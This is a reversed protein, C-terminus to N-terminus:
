EEALQGGDVVLGHGTIFSAADSALFVAAKAVEEPKGLRRMPIANLYREITEPALGAKQALGTDIVGPNLANVRIGYLALEIAMSKTLLMVGAKSANYAALSREAALGNTSSMTIISGSLGQARLRQAALQCTNFVGTLNVDLTRQWNEVSLALFPSSMAIGANAVIVTVPRQWAEIQDFAASLRDRATVDCAVTLVRSPDPVDRSLDAHAGDLAAQNLDILAVSAGERLFQRAIARGLVGAGGTVLCTKHELQM